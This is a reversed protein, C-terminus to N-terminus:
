GSLDAEAEKAVVEVSVKELSGKQADHKKKKEDEAELGKVVAPGRRVMNVAGQPVFGCHMYVARATPASELYLPTVPVTSDAQVFAWDLLRKGVGRGQYEPWTLLPALFWHPEEGMLERRIEDDKAFEVNWAEDSVHEWMEDIEEDTWGMTEKWGYYDIASRLFINHIGKNGPGLWGAVGVMEGTSTLVAKVWNMHPNTFSPLLRKAMRQVRTSQEPPRLSLPEKMNWWVEPFCAYLGEAIKEVDKETCLEIRIDSESLRKEPEVPMTQFGGTKDTPIKIFAAKPQSM